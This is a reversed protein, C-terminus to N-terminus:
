PKSEVGYSHYMDRIEQKIEKMFKEPSIVEAGSGMSLILKKLEFNPIVKIKIHTPDGDIKTQSHHLPKTAVYKAQEASLKLEIWEPEKDHVTVGIVDDFYDSFDFESEIYTESAEELHVMRDLAFNTLTKFKDNLAFLFWRNNYQKLHYPSVVQVTPEASKFSQYTIKLTIKNVIANFLPEIYEIGKLFENEEFSIIESSQESLGFSQELKPIIEHVWEFQPLGKFRSLIFIASRLQEAEMQNLPQNNISFNQDEYRYYVQRGKKYKELPASWGQESSMFRIDYYVQRRRIGDSDPELEHLARNCEETLDDISYQRGPNRFCKDLVQYRLMANKNIPM